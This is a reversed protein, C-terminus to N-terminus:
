VASFEADIRSYGGAQVNVQAPWLREISAPPPPNYPRVRTAILLLNPQNATMPSADFYPRPKQHDFATARLAPRHAMRHMDTTHPRKQSRRNSSERVPPVADTRHLCTLSYIGA